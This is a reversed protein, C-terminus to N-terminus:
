GQPPMPGLQWPGHDHDHERALWGRAHDRGLEILEALFEPAFFLFSLLEGHIPDDGGAVFRGLASLGRDRDRVLARVGSYHENWV